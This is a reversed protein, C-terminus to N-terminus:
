KIIITGQRDKKYEELQEEALENLEKAKEKINKLYTELSDTDVISRNKEFNEYVEELEKVKARMEERREVSDM